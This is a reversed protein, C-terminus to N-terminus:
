ASTKGNESLSDVPIATASISKENISETLALIGIELTLEQGRYRKFKLQYAHILFNHELSNCALSDFNEPQQCNILVPTTACHLWRGPHGTPWTANSYM